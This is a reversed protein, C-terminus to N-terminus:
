ASCGLFSPSDQSLIPPVHSKTVGPSEPFHPWDSVMVRPTMLGAGWLAAGGTSECQFGLWPLPSPSHLSSALPSLNSLRLPLQVNAPAPLPALTWGTGGPSSGSLLPGEPPGCPYHGRGLATSGKQALGTGAPPFQRTHATQGWLVHMALLVPFFCMCSSNVTSPSENVTNPLGGPAKSHVRGLFGGEAAPGRSGERPGLHLGQEKGSQARPESM